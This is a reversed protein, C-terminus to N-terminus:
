SEFHQDEQWSNESKKLKVQFWRPLIVERNFAVEEYGVIGRFLLGPDMWTNIHLM